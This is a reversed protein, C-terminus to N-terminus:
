VALSPEATLLTAVTDIVTFAAGGGFGNWMPSRSPELEDDPFNQVAFTVIRTSFAEFTASLPTTTVPVHLLPAVPLADHVVVLEPKHVTWFTFSVRAPTALTVNVTVPAVLDPYV